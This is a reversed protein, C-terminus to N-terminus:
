KTGRRESDDPNGVSDTRDESLDLGHRKMKTYLLQRHIGLLRAAEARNGATRALARRILMEELRVIASPLDEEPWDAAEGVTVQTEEIFGLDSANIVDGRALVAAREMANKLERVNGV